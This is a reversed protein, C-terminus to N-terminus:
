FDHYSLAFSALFEKIFAFLVATYIYFRKSANGCKGSKM